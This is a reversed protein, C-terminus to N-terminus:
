AAGEPASVSLGPTLGATRIPQGAPPGPEGRVPAHGMLKLLFGVGATFVIGYVAIFALLSTAVGPLGIPSMSDATRM